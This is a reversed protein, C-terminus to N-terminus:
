ALWILRYPQIAEDYGMPVLPVVTGITSVLDRGATAFHATLLGVAQLLLPDKARLDAADIWGVKVRAVGAAVGAFAPDVAQVATFSWPSALSAPDIPTVTVVEQLPLAQAPLAVLGSDLTYFFVDRTQTLLALGTDREVQARAAAVHDKMLQDRPDPPDTTEWYLGARLKAEDLTLPEETPPTVLVSYTSRPQWPAVIM